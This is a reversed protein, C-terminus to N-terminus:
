YQFATQLLLYHVTKAPGTDEIFPGPWFASYTARLSLNRNVVWGLGVDAQTGIYRANSGGDPRVLNVASGYIGDDLSQRWYFVGAATLTWGAGLDVGVIPRLNLLNAPGIQGIDGFYEATPFMANFTGLTRDDPDDDGSIANARLQIFPKLPVEEFRRTVANDLSWARINGGAFDGIQVNAELDWSWPGRSGFFRTGFTHRRERGVGQNFQATENEYGIYYLDVGSDPGIGPLARTAYVSWLQRADDPRDGFWDFDAHDDFWDFEPEVPRLYFGDVRWDGTEWRGLGGDFSTRINPGTSILRASGYEVVQRGGRLTVRSDAGLPAHWELFGQLLDVGTEDVLPSKTRDSRNSWAAILQGFVRFSPGLHLDAYPLARFRLYGEDPKVASGFQNNRFREYRLRVEDGLTLYANGGRDLPIFKLPEWWAGSRNDPDRLYSYDEEYRPATLPPPEPSGPAVRGGCGATQMAIALGVAVLVRMRAPRDSAAEPHERKRAILFLWGGM